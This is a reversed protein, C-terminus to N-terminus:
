MVPVKQLRVLQEYRFLNDDDVVQKMVTSPLAYQTALTM